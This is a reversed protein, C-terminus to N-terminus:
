LAFQERIEKKFFLEAKRRVGEIEREAEEDSAYKVRECLENLREAIREIEAAGGEKLYGSIAELIGTCYGGMDGDIKLRSAEEM